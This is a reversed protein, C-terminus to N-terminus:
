PYYIQQFSEINRAAPDSGDAQPLARTASGKAEPDFVKPLDGKRKPADLVKGQESVNSFRARDRVSRKRSGMRRVILTRRMPDLAEKGLWTKEGARLLNM